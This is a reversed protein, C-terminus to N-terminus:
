KVTEQVVSMLVDRVDSSNEVNAIQINRNRERDIRRLLGSLVKGPGVELYLSFEDSILRSMTREWQVPKTIQSVLNGRIQKADQVYDGTVNQVFKIEPRRFEINAVAEKMGDEAPQMLKSHSACSVELKICRKARRKQALKTALELAEFEGSIVIQGPCNYNAIELVGASNAEHCIEAVQDSDLGLIAVMGGPNKEAAEKMLRARKKVLKLASAFSLVDSAVLASYEGLSHGAVANTKTALGEETGGVGKRAPLALTPGPSTNRHFSLSPIIGNEQLVRLTAISVTFVALQTYETQKLKDADGYFCLESIKMGLIDDAEEFTSKAIPFNLALDKGMGVKQSGQGPFM